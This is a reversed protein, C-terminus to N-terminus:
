KTHTRGGKRHTKHPLELGPARILVWDQENAPEIIILIIMIEIITIVIRIIIVIIFTIKKNKIIVIMIIINRRLPFIM